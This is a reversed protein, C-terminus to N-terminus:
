HGDPCGTKAKPCSHSEPCKTGAALPTVTYGLKVISKSIIDATTKTPDYKVTVKKEELNVSFSKVGKEYALSKGIKEKCSECHMNVSFSAEKVTAAPKSPQSKSVISFVLLLSFLSAIKIITRM